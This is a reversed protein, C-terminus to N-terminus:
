EKVFRVAAAHGGLQTRVTYLGAALHGVNLTASTTLPQYELVQRGMVDLIVVPQAATLGDITLSGATPVPSVRLTQGPLPMTVVAVPLATETGDQDKQRLRYYWTGAGVAADTYRYSAGTTASGQSRIFSLEQWSGDPSGRREVSFGKSLLESATSWNLQVDTAVAQATFKVLTVPLPRAKDALTFFNGQTFNRIGTVTIKNLGADRTTARLDQWTGGNPDNTRFLELSNEDMSYTKQVGNDLYSYSIESPTADRYTFILKYDLGDVATPQVLFQRLASQSLANNGAGFAAGTKYGGTYRTVTTIGLTQSNSSPALTLGIGSFQYNNPGPVDGTAQVTGRIYGPGTEHLAINGPDAPSVALIVKNPGTEVVGGSLNMTSLITIDGALTKTGTGPIFLDYYSAAAIQQAGNGDLTVRANGPLFTGAVTFNGSVTLNSNGTAHKFTAGSSVTFDRKVTVNNNSSNMDLTGQHIVMNGNIMWSGANRVTLGPSNLTFDHVNFNSLDISATGAQAASPAIFSTQSFPKTAASGNGSNSVTYYYAAYRAATSAALYGGENTVPVCGDTTKLNGTPTYITYGLWNFAAAASLSLASRAIRLERVSTNGTTKAVLDAIAPVATPSATMATISTSGSWTGNSSSYYDVKDNDLFFARDARFPPAVTAEQGGSSYRIGSLTGASGNAPMAPDSDFFLVAPLTFKNGAVAVYIYNADWTMYWTVMNNVQNQTDGYEGTSIVGDQVPTQYQARCQQPSLISLGVALLILLPPTFPKM